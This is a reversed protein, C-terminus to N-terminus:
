LFARAWVIDEALMPGEEKHITMVEPDRGIDKERRL